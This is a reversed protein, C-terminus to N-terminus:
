PHGEGAALEQELAPALAYREDTRSLEKLLAAINELGIAASWEFPGMPYNTGLKMATDIEARTSVDAGLTYYAENIIMALVRPTVMGGIDPVLQYRWQLVGFVSEVAAQQGADTLAIEIVPRRLLTPWGNIRIVKTGTVKGTWPVANVFLPKGNVPKVRAIREPDATYLLDFYADAEIMLLSRLSDAWVYEVGAPAERALWEAKLVEDALIAITM